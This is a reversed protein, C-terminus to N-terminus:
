PSVFQMLLRRHIHTEIEQHLKKLNKQSQITPSKNISQKTKHRHIQM